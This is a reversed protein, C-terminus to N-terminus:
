EQQRKDSDSWETVNNLQQNGDDCQDLTIDIDDLGTHDSTDEGVDQQYQTHAVKSSTEPEVFLEVSQGSSLHM